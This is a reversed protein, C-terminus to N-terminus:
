NNIGEKNESQSIIVSQRYQEAEPVDFWEVTKDFNNRIVQKIEDLSVNFFERRHNIKNVKRKEFATHLASELKPADETFILAHVDFNFPVSANGLERIREMPELRRTMGIKYINEGFAGINSIVYVYGARQNAQRYDVDEIAKETEALTDELETKKALLDADNPVKKLQAYITLLANAYHTREKELKKRADEIEKQAKKEEREQAKLERLREREEEKKEVYDISLNLEKIKLNIYQYNISVKMIIGLKSISDAANRIKQVSKDRNSLKVHAIIDDCELNFARLLLKQMDSVMKRGQTKNGNVTWDTAGTVARKNKIMEKQLARVNALEDKYLDSTAFEYTPRYIGYGLMDIEENLGGLKSNLQLIHRELDSIQQKENLIQTDFYQLKQNKDFIERNLEEIVKRLDAIDNHEPLLQSKLSENESKLKENLMKLNEFEQNLLILEMEKAQLEKEKKKGIGFIAM